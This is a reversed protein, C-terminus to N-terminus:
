AKLNILGRDTLQRCRMAATQTRDCAIEYPIQPSSRSILVTKKKKVETKGRWYWEVPAAYIIKSM